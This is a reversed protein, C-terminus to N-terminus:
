YTYCLLFIYIGENPYKEDARTKVPRLSGVGPQDGDKAKATNSVNQPSIFEPSHHEAGQVSTMKGDDCDSDSNVSKEQLAKFPPVEPTPHQQVRSQKNPLMPGRIDETKREGPITTKEEVATVMEGRDDGASQATPQTGPTIAHPVCPSNDETDVPVQSGKEVVCTSDDDSDRGKEVEVSSLELSSRVEMSSLDASGSVVGSDLGKEFDKQPTSSHSAEQELEESLKNKAIENETKNTETPVVGLQGGLVVESGGKSPDETKQGGDCSQIPQPQGPRLVCVNFCM